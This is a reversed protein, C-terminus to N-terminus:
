VAADLIDSHSKTELGYAEKLKNELRVDMPIEPTKKRQDRSGRNESSNGGYGTFEENDSSEYEDTAPRGAHSHAATRSASAANGASEERHKGTRDAAAVPRVKKTENSSRNIYSIYSADVYM